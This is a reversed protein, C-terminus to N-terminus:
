RDTPRYKDESWRKPNEAIYAAIADFRQEDRVVHDHFGRQWVCLDGNGTLERAQRTVAAKYGAIISAVSGKQRKGFDGASPHESNGTVLTVMAHMHNPMIIWGHDLLEPRMVLTTAWAESAITGIATCHMTEAAIAGFLCRRDFTCLTVFVTGPGAYNYGALRVSRRHSFDHEHM